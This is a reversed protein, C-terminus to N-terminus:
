VWCIIRAFIKVFKRWLRMPLRHWPQLRLRDWLAAPLHNYYHILKHLGHQSEAKLLPDYRCIKAPDFRGEALKLGYWEDRYLFLNFGQFDHELWYVGGSTDIQADVQWFPEERAAVSQTVQLLSMPKGQRVCTIWPNEQLPLIRKTIRAELALLSMSLGDHPGHYDTNSATANPHWTHYLYEDYLWREQLGANVLRFTMEYPGCVYGLYDLHEDAGGIALLECRRAAMCAGYNAQHLMDPSNDLGRSISGHWNECGADLVDTVSPYCFPYFSLDNSRIEDLHIVAQPTQAFGAIIKELFTPSFMADSDCIVCIEGQAALIGLNYLRHKNYIYHEPYGAVIWTDITPQRNGGLAALNILQNPKRSYFELWILEYSTRDVTQENLYILSHFSERVSWDILIVSVKCGIRPRYLITEPHIESM